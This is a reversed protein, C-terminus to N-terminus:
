IFKHVSRIICTKLYVVGTRYLIYNLYKNFYYSSIIILLDIINLVYIPKTKWYTVMEIYIIHLHPPPPETHEGSDVRFKFL